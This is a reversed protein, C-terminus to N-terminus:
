KKTQQQRKESLRINLINYGTYEVKSPTDLTTSTKKSSCQFILSTTKDTLPVNSVYQENNTASVDNSDVKRPQSECNQEFELTTLTDRKGNRKVDTVDQEKKHSAVSTRKVRVQCMRLTRNLEPQLCSSGAMRQQRQPMIRPKHLPYVSDM